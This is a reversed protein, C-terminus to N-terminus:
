PAHRKSQDLGMIFRLSPMSHARMQEDSYAENSGVPCARRALCDLRCSSNASLRHSQCQSGDWQPSCAGAPCAAECARTLCSDCPSPRDVPDCRPALVDACIVARYAFWTGWMEDINLQFPSHHKWGLIRGIAQLPVVAGMEGTADPVWVKAAWGRLQIRESLFQHVWRDIPNAEDALEDISAVRYADLITRWLARGHHGVIWWQKAQMAHAHDLELRGQLSEGLEAPEMVGLVSLGHADLDNVWDSWDSASILSETM